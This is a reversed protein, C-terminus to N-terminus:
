QLVFEYTGTAYDNSLTATVEYTGDATINRINSGGSNTITGTLESPSESGFDNDWPSIFKMDYNPSLTTTITFINPHVYTM